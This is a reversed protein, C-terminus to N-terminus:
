RDNTVPCFLYDNMMMPNNKMRKKTIMMPSNKMRKKTMSHIKTTQKLSTEDCDSQIKPESKKESCNEVNINSWIFEVM